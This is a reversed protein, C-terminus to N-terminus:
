NVSGKSLRDLFEYYENKDSKSEPNSQQEPLGKSNVYQNDKHEAVFSVAKDWVTQMIKDINEALFVSKAIRGAVDENFPEIKDKFSGELIEPIAKRFDDDFDIKISVKEDVGKFEFEKEVASDLKGVFTPIEKKLMNVHQSRIAQDELDRREAEAKEPNEHVSLDARYKSLDALDKKSSVRLEDELIRRDISDEDYQDLDFDREVKAKAVDESYNDILVMKAVKVELPSLKDLDGYSNLKIFSNLQDKSAGSSVLNNLTKVYDNAPKFQTKELEEKQKLIEDYSKAKEVHSKLTDIDYDEGFEKKVFGLYDPEDPTQDTGDESVAEGQGEGTPMEGNDQTNATTEGGDTNGEQTMEVNGETAETTSLGVAEALLEATESM